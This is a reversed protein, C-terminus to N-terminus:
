EPHIAMYQRIYSELVAQPMIPVPHEPYLERHKGSYYCYGCALHCRGCVPKAMIQVNYETM